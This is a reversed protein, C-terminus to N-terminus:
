VLAHSLLDLVRGTSVDREAAAAPRRPLDVAVYDYAGDRSRAATGSAVTGEGGKTDEHVSGYMTGGLSMTDNAYAYGSPSTSYSMRSSSPVSTMSWTDSDDGVSGGVIMSSGSVKRKLPCPPEPLPRGHAVCDFLDKIVPGQNTALRYM